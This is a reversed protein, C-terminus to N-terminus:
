LCCGNLREKQLLFPFRRIYRGSGETRSGTDAILGHTPNEHFETGLNKVLRHRAVTLKM